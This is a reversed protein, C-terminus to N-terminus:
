VFQAGVDGLDRLTVLELRHHGVDAVLDSVKVRRLEGLEPVLIGFPDFSRHLRDAAHLTLRSTMVIAAGVPAAITWYPSCFADACMGRQCPPPAPLRDRM